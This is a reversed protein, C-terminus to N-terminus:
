EGTNFLKTKIVNLLCAELENPDHLVSYEPYLDKVNDDMIGIGYCEVHKGIHAIVDRAYTWADGSRCSAPCGDSLVILIKRPEKRQQLKNYAWMLSDGDANQYLKSGVRDYDDLIDYSQRKENFEKIVYQELGSGRETFAAISLPIGLPTIADNLLAVAAATIDYKRGSMSGSADTLLMISTGKPDAQQKRQTFVDEDGNPVRYLDRKDLRGSKKYHEIRRQTVSQFLRRAADALTKGEEYFQKMNRKSAHYGDGDPLDRARRELIKDSPWPIYNSQPEHDYDITMFSDKTSDIVGGDDKHEHGMLDSYSVKSKGPEDGEDGVKSGAGEETGGEGDDGEGSEKGGTGEEDSPDGEGKAAQKNEELQKEPDGEPHDELFDMVLNFVDEATVLEALRHSLHSYNDADTHKNFEISPIAVNPQWESRENYVFGLADAFLKMDGETPPGHKAIAIGGETCYYGQTWSLDEGAGKFHSTANRENRVDDFINFIKGLVTGFCLGNAEFFPLTDSVEPAHHWVEHTTEGSWKRIRKIDWYPNLPEVYVVKKKLDTRPQTCGKEQRLTLGVSRAQRQKSKFIGNVDHMKNPKKRSYRM